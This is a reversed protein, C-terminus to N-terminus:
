AGTGRWWDFLSRWDKYGYYMKYSFRESDSLDPPPRLPGAIQRAESGDSRMLWTTWANKADVRCFLIHSGDGPWIPEEDSYQPDNTLQRPGDNPSVGAAYIRRLRMCRDITEPKAGLRLEPTIPIIRRKGARPGEVTITKQDNALLQQKDLFGADPGSCWALKEGNPSWAPLQAAVSPKTLV